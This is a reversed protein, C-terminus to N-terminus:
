TLHNKTALAAKLQECLTKLIFVRAYYKQKGPVVFWPATPQHTREILDDMNSYSNILNVQTVRSVLAM